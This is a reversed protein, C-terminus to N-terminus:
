VYEPVQARSLRAIALIEDSYDASALDVLGLPDASATSTRWLGTLKHTLYAHVDVVHATHALTEPEHEALWLLKYFAPTPNAPKGTLEHIRATGFREVQEGARADLWLMAPRIPEGDADLCAFSERQHTVAIAKVRSPDDLSAVCARVATVTGNWWDHPDQEGFGPQPISLALETAGTAVLIGDLAWAFAKAGSTSCDISLVLDSM